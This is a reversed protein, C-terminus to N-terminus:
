GGFWGTMAPLEATEVIGPRAACVYPIANVVPNATLGSSGHRNGASAPSTFSIDLPVDGEVRMHQGSERLNWDPEVDRTVYLVSTRRIVAKGGRLGSISRSFAGVTGKEVTGAAIEVRSRTLAIDNHTIFEDVRLGLATATMQLSGPAIKTTGESASAALKSPDAGFPLIEFLMQRSDYGSMDAYDTLTICDIRRELLSLALPLQETFWEPTAGTNYLSAQGRECAAELLRRTDPEIAARCNFETRATVVNCGAELLRCLMDIESYGAMYSVCDPRAALIDEIDQTAVIGTSALGCLEGADRGAKADSYVRLAVLDLWPHEIIARLCQLAPM